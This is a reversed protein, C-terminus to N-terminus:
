AVVEPPTGKREAMALKAMQAMAKFDLAGILLCVGLYAAGDLLLRWIGFPLLFHDMIAVGVGVLMTKLLVLMTHREFFERGLSFMIM